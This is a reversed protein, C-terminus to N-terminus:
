RPAVSDNIGLRPSSSMHIFTVALDENGAGKFIRAWKFNYTQTETTRKSYVIVVEFWPPINSM